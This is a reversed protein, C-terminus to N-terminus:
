NSGISESIINESIIQSFNFNPYNKIIEKLIEQSFSILKTDSFSAIKLSPFGHQITSFAEGPGRTKLDYEAIKLGNHNKELFELRNIAKQNQSETFLYCYSQQHGRGVRGRLQHLAALGFRDASQIIIISSNPIDVGVEIIPTTVLINIKNDQFQKIIKQRTESKIKGHILGLKLNPFINKSLHEFEQIASKISSMSESFDIFPCVTFAQCGTKKIEKEIWKYCNFKKHDPVLFTKIQLRNQPLTDIISIDLNGLLTLSITRPIPTATMTLCHPLKTSSSLFSRQKVGFKHQEDIILLSIKNKLDDKKYIIAHTSIIIANKPVKKIDIKKSGTMLFLPINLDKLINQFNQYHQHALIETPAILVSLSNNLHTLYCSLLAVITKGSGVDGQLLRNMVQTSNTLDSFIESLVKNQSDTLKFPLSKILDKIKKDITKTTKIKTKPKQNSWDKKSLYSKIQLSLIEETALRTRAQSLLHSNVPCHIQLLTTKLDLLKFKKILDTPLTEKIPILLNSIQTQIIKRFWKSTLGNTEPYVAIIKGTNHPGYEPAIITKKNQFLSVTGAFSFIDGTKINKSLYPQNFWILDIKGTNDSIIAKQINKGTKTFINKFDLVKGTITINENELVSNIKVSHSFDIYRNPFHYLLDKPYNINLRKLKEIIKPGISPIQSLSDM